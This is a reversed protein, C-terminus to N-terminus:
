DIELLGKFKAAVLNKKALNSETADVYKIAYTPCYKACEPSGDCLDCKVIKKQSSSYEINGFPCASVCMKCGICRSEDVLVTSNADRYLAKAPCVDMCAAEECQFCAVPVSISALGEEFTFVDVAFKDCVSECTGCDKCLKPTVLLTM